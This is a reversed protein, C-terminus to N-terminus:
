KVNKNRRDSECLLCSCHECKSGTVFRDRTHRANSSRLGYLTKCVRAAIMNTNAEFGSVSRQRRASVRVSRLRPKNYNAPKSNTHYASLIVFVGLFQLKRIWASIVHMHKLLPAGTCGTTQLRITVRVWCNTLVNSRLLYIFGM